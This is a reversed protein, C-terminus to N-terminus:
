GVGARLQMAQPSFAAQPVAGVPAAMGGPIADPPAGPLPPAAGPMAGPATNQNAPQEQQDVIYAATVVFQRLAELIEEPAGDNVWKLYEQQSRWVTAKANMYPEPVVIRGEAIEDLCHEVSEIAATYLSLSSELDPEGMLRRAEDQSIIGAQAFEIVLQKRGAPTRNLNSAPKIQIKVDKMDVDSWKIRKSGFRSHRMMEPAKEGLDKCVEIVLTVVDLVLQEFAKEQLAFRQSSQDRYERLAVGSDLGAPKAAHTALRSQGFEESASDRLALRSQYTEASVAQPTVTHPYDGKVVAVAGVRSTKVTLNADAPRVYTTPLAGYELAREIQWNRKNLARQIGAIREAGGIGYWSTTRETYVICAYPFHDKEWKEEFIDAGDVTITHRGPRYGKLGKKGVPLRFSELYTVENTVSPRVRRNTRWTSSRSARAREIDAEKSPFRAILEDADVSVWEHFQLPPRSDRTEDQDVVVNEVMVHRVRPEEFVEEVRVLGNGKKTSEKFASRCKPSVGLLVM